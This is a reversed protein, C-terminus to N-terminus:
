RLLEKLFRAMYEKCFAEAFAEAILTAPAKLRAAGAMVEALHADIYAKMARHIRRKRARRRWDAVMRATHSVSRM